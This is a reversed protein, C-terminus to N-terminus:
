IQLETCPVCGPVGPLPREMVLPPLLQASRKMSAVGVASVRGGHAAGADSTAVSGASVADCSGTM